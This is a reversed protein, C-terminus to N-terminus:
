SDLGLELSHTFTMQFSQLEERFDFGDMTYSVFFRGDSFNKDVSIIECFEVCDELYWREGAAFAPSTHDHIKQYM